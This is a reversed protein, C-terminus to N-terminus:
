EQFLTYAGGGKLAVPLEEGFMGIFKRLVIPDVVRRAWSVASRCLVQPLAARSATSLRAQARQM